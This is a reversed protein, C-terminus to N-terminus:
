ARKKQASGLGGKEAAAEVTHKAPPSGAPTKAEAPAKSLTGKASVADGAASATLGAAEAGTVGHRSAGAAGAGLSVAMGGLQMGTGVPGPVFKGVSGVISGASSVAGTTEAHAKDAAAMGEKGAQAIDAQQKDRGTVKTSM